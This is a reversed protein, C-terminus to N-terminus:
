TTFLGPQSAKKRMTDKKFFTLQLLRYVQVGKLQEQWPQQRWRLAIVSVEYGAERLTVAERRVRTDQPYTNEVLMLIKNKM